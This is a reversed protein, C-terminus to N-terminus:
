EGLYKQGQKIARQVDKHPRLLRNGRNPTDRFTNSKSDYIYKKNGEQYNCL